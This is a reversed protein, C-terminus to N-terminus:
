KRAPKLGRQRRYKWDLHARVAAASLGESKGCREGEVLRRDAGERAVYLHWHHGSKGYMGRARRGVAVQVRYISDEIQVTATRSGRSTDVGKALIRPNCDHTATYAAIWEAFDLQQRTSAINADLQRQDYCYGACKGTWFTLTAALEQVRPVRISKSLKFLAPAPLALLRTM